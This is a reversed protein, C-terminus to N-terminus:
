RRLRGPAGRLGAWALGALMVRERGLTENTGLGQRAARGALWRAAAPQTRLAALVRARSPDVRSGCRMELVRAALAIRCYVNFYPMRWGPRFRRERLRGWTIQVREPWSASYRGGANAALFGIAADGHQVYDYLPRDVYALPGLSMAVQAIWHDHYTAAHRPPFPLVDDLLERRFLSAAGTVTNAVVLSGYDTFNNRRHSWYTDSLVRGDADVIRMDSYALKAAPESRLAAILAELKGPSWADDQDCLAIMEAAAPVMTLAREFNAYFGRNVPSRSLVFRPDWDVAQRLAATGAEGSGDDSILCIWRGHTQERISAIQRELLAPDPDYSAMCIAVLPESDEGAAAAVAEEVASAIGEVEPLEPIAEFRGAPVSTRPGGPLEAILELEITRASGTPDIPLITWWFENGSRSAPPPAGWGMLPVERGDAMLTLSRPQAGECHLLGAVFIATGRGVAVRAPLRSTVEASIGDVPESM